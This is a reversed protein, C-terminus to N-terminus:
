RGLTFRTLFSAGPEGSPRYSAVAAVLRGQADLGAESVLLKSGTGMPAQVWGERGFSRDVRGSPLTRGIVLFLRRSRSAKGRHTRSLGGMLVIRGSPDVAVPRLTRRTGAPMQFRQVGAQGFQRDRRGTPTTKSLWDTPSGRHLVLAGTTTALLDSQSHYTAVGATGFEEAPNGASDFRFALTQPPCAQSSIAIVPETGRVLSFSVGGSRSGPLRSVGNGDGFSMDPAGASTLRGVARPISAVGSHGSCPVEEDALGILLLPRGQSDVTGSVVQATPLAPSLESRLGFDERVYGKGGGFQSDLQGFTSFRVVVAWSSPVTPEPPLDVATGGFAAGFVLVRGQPDVAIDSSRFELGDVAAPVSAEGGGGFGSDRQGNPLFKIVRGARLAFVSGDPAGATWLPGLATRPLTARGGQGFGRDLHGADATAIAPLLFLVLSAVVGAFLRVRECRTVFLPSTPTQCNVCM